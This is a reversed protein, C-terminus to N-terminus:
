NSIIREVLITMLSYHGVPLAGMAEHRYVMGKMSHGNEVFSLVDSKM